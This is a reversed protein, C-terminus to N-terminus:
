NSCILIFKADYWKSVLNWQLSHTGDSHSDLFTIFFFDCYVELLGCSEHEYIYMKHLTFSHTQYSCIGSEAMYSDVGQHRKVDFDVLM